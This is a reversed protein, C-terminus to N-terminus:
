DKKRGVIGAKYDKIGAKVAEFQYKGVLIGIIIEAYALLFSTIKKIGNVYDKILYMRNRIKYYNMLPSNHGTSSSVNHYIVSKGVYKLSCGNKKARWCYETDEYYLFFKDELMGIKEIVKMPVLMCCGTIFSVEKISDDINSNYTKNIRDHWARGLLESLKGGGYWVTNNSKWYMIRPAILCDDCANDILISLFDPTVITDNNLLLVYDANEKQAIEIAINNGGSFGLNDISKVVRFSNNGNNAIYEKLIAYSNNTSGNDVIIVNFCLYMLQNLSKICEITDLYGNYNVLIITVKPQKVDDM